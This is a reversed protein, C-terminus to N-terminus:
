GIVVLIGFALKGNLLKELMGIVDSGIESFKVWM